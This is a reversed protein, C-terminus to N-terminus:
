IISKLKQEALTRWVTESQKKELMYIVSYSNFHKVTFFCRLLLASCTLSINWHSSQIKCTLCFASLSQRLIESQVSDLSCQRLSNPSSSLHSVRIKLQSHLKSCYCIDQHHIVKSTSNTQSWRKSKNLYELPVFM